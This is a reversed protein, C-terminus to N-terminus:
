WSDHLYHYLGFLSWNIANLILICKKQLIIHEVCCVTLCKSRKGGGNCQRAWCLLTVIHPSRLRVWSSAAVIYCPTQRWEWSSIKLLQQVLWIWICHCFSLLHRLNVCTGHSVHMIEFGFNDYTIYELCQSSCTRMPGTLSLSTVLWMCSRWMIFISNWDM